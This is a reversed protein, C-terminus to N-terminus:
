KCFPCEAGLYERSSMLPLPPDATVVATLIPKYLSADCIEPAACLLWVTAYKLETYRLLVFCKRRYPSLGPQGVSQSFQSIDKMNKKKKHVFVNICMYLCLEFHVCMGVMKLLPVFPGLAPCFMFNVFCLFM